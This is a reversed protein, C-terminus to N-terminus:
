KASIVAKWVAETDPVPIKQVDFLPATAALHYLSLAGDIEAVLQDTTTVTFTRVLKLDDTAKACLFNLRQVGAEYFAGRESLAALYGDLRGVLKLNNEIRPSHLAQKLSTAHIRRMEVVIEDAYTERESTLRRRLQDAQQQQRAVKDAMIQISDIKQQLLYGADGAGEASLAEHVLCLLILVVIFIWVPYPTPQSLDNDNM